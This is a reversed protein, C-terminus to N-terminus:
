LTSGPASSEDDILKLVDQHLAAMREQTKLLEELLQARASVRCRPKSQEYGAACELHWMAAHCGAKRGQGLLWQFQEISLKDNRDPNLCDLLWRGAKDPELEPRMEHGVKKAGGLQRVVEHLAQWIDQFEQHPATM